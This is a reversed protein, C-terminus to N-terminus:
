LVFDVYITHCHTISFIVKWLLCGKLFLGGVKYNDLTKESEEDLKIIGTKLTEVEKQAIDCKQEATLRQSRDSGSMMSKSRKRNSAEKISVNQISPLVSDKVGEKFEIRSLYKEFM